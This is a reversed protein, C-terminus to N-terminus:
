LTLIFQKTIGKEEFDKNQKITKNQADMHSNLYNWLKVAYQFHVNKLLVNTMKLPSKVLIIKKSSLFKYMKKLTNIKNKYIEELREYKTKHHINMRCAECHICDKCTM